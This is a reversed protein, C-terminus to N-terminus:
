PNNYPRSDIVRGAPILEGKENRVFGESDIFGHTGSDTPDDPKDPYLHNPNLAPFLQM